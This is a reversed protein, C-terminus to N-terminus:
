KKRQKNKQKKDNLFAQNDHIDNKELSIPYYLPSALKMLSLLLAETVSM